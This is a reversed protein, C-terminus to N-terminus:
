PLSVLLERRLKTLAHNVFGAADARPIASGRKWRRKSYWDAAFGEMIKSSERAYSELGRLFEESGSLDAFGRERGVHNSLERDIYFRLTRGLFDAFFRGAVPAFTAPTSYAVFADQLDDLSSSFLSRAQTGVTESLARRLALSAIDSFPGSQLYDSTEWRVRDSIAAIFTLASGDGPIEIGLRAMAFRFDPERSAAAVRVLLWYCLTLSPDNSLDKLRREAAFLTARAIGAPDDPSDELLSVVRRWRITRPLTGLHIHGM